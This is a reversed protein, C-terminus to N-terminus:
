KYRKKRFLENNLIQNPSHLRADFTKFVLGSCSDSRLTDPTNNLTPIVSTPQPIDVRNIGTQASLSEQVKM